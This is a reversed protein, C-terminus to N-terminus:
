EGDIVEILRIFNFGGWDTLASQTADDFKLIGNYWVKECYVTNQSLYRNMECKITDEKQSNWKIYTTTIERDYKGEDLVLHMYYRNNGPNKDIFFNRPMDLNPKYFEEKKGDKLYYIRISDAKYSGLNEPNLLDTGNSDTIALEIGTDIVTPSIFDRACASFIVLFILVVRTLTKM